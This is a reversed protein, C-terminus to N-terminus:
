AVPLSLSAIGLERAIAFPLQTDSAVISFNLAGMSIFAGALVGLMLTKAIPLGAKAVGTTQVLEAIQSPSYADYGLFSTM